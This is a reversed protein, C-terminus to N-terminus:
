ISTWADKLIKVFRYVDIFRTYLPSLSTRIIKEQRIDFFVDKKLLDQQIKKLKKATLNGKLMFSIQNGREKFSSPTLIEIKNKFAGRLLYEMYSTLKFSKKQLEKINAKNFIELSAKLLALELIPPNSLKWGKAGFNPHYIDQMSFRTKENQGWWGLLRKLKLIKKTKSSKVVQNQNKTFHREHIFSGGISGPGGNLYKYSCWVAFDPGDRHLNLTLNGIGHALDFGVLCNHKHGMQTINKIDFSQGTLYHPTGILILAIEHGRKKITKLIDETRLYHEKSRPSLFILTSSPSYNHLSIQSKVAHLDSPFEDRLMLIKHKKKTPKYFSILMLHLNTTLSNMISVELNKAGILKALDKELPTDYRAWPNEKLFHGEVAWKEWQKLEKKVLHKARKPQLGLSHGAFYICSKRHSNQNKKIRDKSPFLFEKRFSRLPDKKDQNYHFDPSEFNNFSELNDFRSLSNSHSDIDQNKHNKSSSKSTRKMREFMTNQM